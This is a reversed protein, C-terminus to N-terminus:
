FPPAGAPRDVNLAGPYMLLLRQEAERIYRRAMVYVRAEAARTFEAPRGKHGYFHRRLRERLDTAKGIYLNAGERLLYVGSYGALGRVWPSLGDYDPRRADGFVRRWPTRRIAQEAIM